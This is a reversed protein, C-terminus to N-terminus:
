KIIKYNLLHLSLIVHNVNVVKRRITNVWPFNKSGKKKSHQNRLITYKIFLIM